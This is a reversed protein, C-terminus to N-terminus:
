AAECGRYIRPVRYTINTLIEWPITDCWQALHSATIREQGQEGILVVEDGPQVAGVGSVDVVTQDMTVRGLVACRQGGILVQARNSAARFFGDGYGATVIAVCMARPTVFSQGYSIPTGAPLQRVLSVRCKWSLAPRFGAAFSEVLRPGPPVIGYVLLGTRVLNCPTPQGLLLGASNSAHLWDLGSRRKAMVELVDAFREM